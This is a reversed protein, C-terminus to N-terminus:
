ATIKRSASAPKQRRGHPAYALMGVVVPLRNRCRSYLIKHNRYSNKKVLKGCGGISRKWARPLILQGCCNKAAGLWDYLRVPNVSFRFPAKGWQVGRRPKRARSLQAITEKKEARVANTAAGLDPQEGSDCSKHVPVTCKVEGEPRWKPTSHLNQERVAGRSVHVHCWQRRPPLIASVLVTHFLM